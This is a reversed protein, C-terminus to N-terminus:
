EEFDLPLMTSVTYETGWYGEFFVSEIKEYYGNEYVYVPEKLEILSRQGKYFIELWGKYNIQQGEMLQTKDTIEVGLSDVYKSANLLNRYYYLSDQDTTISRYNLSTNRGSVKREYENIKKVIVRQPLLKPNPSRHLIHVKFGSEPLMNANLSRFFHRPSGLYVRSRNREWRKKDEQELKEFRPIGLYNITRGGVDYVFSKMEYTLEYGTYKNEIQIPERAHAYFVSRLEDYYFVLAKPNLITCADAARNVGLFQRSFIQFHFEWDSTDARVYIAPLNLIEQVIEIAIEYTENDNLIIEKSFTGYGMISVALSYKGASFARLEFTGDLRTSTGTLTNAFYVSAYPVPEGTEEDTVTGRVTQALLGNALLLFCCTLIFLFAKRITRM